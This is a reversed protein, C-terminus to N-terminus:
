ILLFVVMELIMAIFTVTLPKKALFPQWKEPFFRTMMMCLAPTIVLVITLLFYKKEIEM